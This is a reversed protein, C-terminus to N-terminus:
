NKKNFTDLPEIISNSLENISIESENLKDANINTLMSDWTTTSKSLANVFDKSTFVLENLQNLYEITQPDLNADKTMNEIQININDIDKNLSDLETKLRALNDITDKIDNSITHSQNKILIMDSKMEDIQACGYLPLIFLLLLWIIKM